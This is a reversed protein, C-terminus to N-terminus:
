DANDRLEQLWKKVGEFTKSKTIDYVVIAGLAGKYYTNTIAKFREQGATDWIQTKVNVSDIKITKTEFQVGITPKSDESFKNDKFRSLINSKGVGSDLYYLM